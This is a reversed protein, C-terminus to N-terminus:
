QLRRIPRIFRRSILRLSDALSFLGGVLDSSFSRIRIYAIKCSTLCKKLVNYLLYLVICYITNLYFLIHQKAAKIVYIHCRKPEISSSLSSASPSHPESYVPFSSGFM